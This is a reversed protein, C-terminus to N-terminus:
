QLPAGPLRFDAVIYILSVGLGLEPHAVGSRADTHTSYQNRYSVFEEALVSRGREVLL